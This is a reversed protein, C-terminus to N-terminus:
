STSTLSARVSASASRSSRAGEAFASAGFQLAPRVLNECDIKESRIAALRKIAQKGPQLFGELFIVSGKDIIMFRM